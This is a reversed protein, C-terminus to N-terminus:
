KFIDDPIKYIYKMLDLSEFVPIDWWLQTRQGFVVGIRKTYEKRNKYPILGDVEIIGSSPVLIGTLMKITTSKGAGNPGIYGVIEGKEIEFSIGDVANKMEYERHFLENFINTKKEQKRVKFEKRLNEVKILSM